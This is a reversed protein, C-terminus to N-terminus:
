ADVQHYAHGRNSRREPIPQAHKGGQNVAARDTLQRSLTEASGLWLHSLCLSETSAGPLFHPLTVVYMAKSQVLRQLTEQLM